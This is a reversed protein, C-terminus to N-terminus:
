GAPLGARKGGLGSSGSGLEAPHIGAGAAQTGCSGPPRSPAGAEEHWMEM